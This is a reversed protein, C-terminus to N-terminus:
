FSTSKPIIDFWSFEYPHSGCGTERACQMDISLSSGNSIDTEMTNIKGYEGTKKDVLNGDVYVQIELPPLGSADDMAYQIKLIAPGGPLKCTFSSLGSVAIGHHGTFIERGVSIDAGGPYLLYNSSRTVCKLNFVYTSGSEPVEQGLNNSPTSTPSPTSYPQPSQMAKQINHLIGWAYTNSQAQAVSIDIAEMVVSIASACLLQSVLRLKKM